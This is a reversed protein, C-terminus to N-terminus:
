DSSKCKSADAHRGCQLNECEVEAAHMQRPTSPRTASPVLGRESEASLLRWTAHNALDHVFAKITLLQLTDGTVGLPSRLRSTM